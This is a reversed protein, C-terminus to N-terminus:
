NIGLVMKVDEESKIKNKIPFFPGDDGKKRIETNPGLGCEACESVCKVTEVTVGIAPALEQFYKLATKGGTRSCTPGTCVVVTSGEALTSFLQHHPQKQRQYQQQYHHHYNQSSPFTQHDNRTRACHSPGFVDTSPFQQHNKKTQACHSPGFADVDSFNAISLLFSFALIINHNFSNTMVVTEKHSYIEIYGIIILFKKLNTCFNRGVM